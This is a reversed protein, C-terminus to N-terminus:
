AAAPTAASRWAYKDSSNLLRMLLSRCAGRVRQSPPVKSGSGTYRLPPWPAANASSVNDSRGLLDLVSPPKAVPRGSTKGYRSLIQAAACCKECRIYGNRFSCCTQLCASGICASLEYASRNALQIATVTLEGARHDGTCQGVCMFTRSPGGTQAMCAIRAFRSCEGPAGDESTTPRSPVRIQNCDTQEAIQGFM